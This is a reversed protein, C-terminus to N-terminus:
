GTVPTTVVMTPNYCNQSMGSTHLRPLAKAACRTTNDEETGSTIMTRPEHLGGSCSRTASDTVPLGPMAVAPDPERCRRAM